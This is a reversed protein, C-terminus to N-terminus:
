YKIFCHSTSKKLHTSKSFANLDGPRTCMSCDVSITDVLKSSGKGMPNKQTKDRQLISCFDFWLFAEFSTMPCFDYQDCKLAM